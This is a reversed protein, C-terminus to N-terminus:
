PANGGASKAPAAAKREVQENAKSDAEAETTTTTMAYVVVATLVINAISLPLLGKWGLSMLQDYRFRPLTWRIWMVFFVWFLVKLFFVLWTVLTPLIGGSQDWDTFPIDWGGFFLTTIM